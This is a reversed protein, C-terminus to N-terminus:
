VTWIRCLGSVNSQATSANAIVTILSGPNQNLMPQQAASISFEFPIVLTEAAPVTLAGTQSFPIPIAFLGTGQGLGINITGAGAGNTIYLVGRANLTRWLTPTAVPNAAGGQLASIPYNANIATPSTPASFVVTPVTAILAAVLASQVTDPDNAM